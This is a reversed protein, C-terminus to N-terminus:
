QSILNSELLAVFRSLPVGMAACVELLELVDLKREGNEYNSVYSQPRGLAAAVDVQKMGAEIRIQRLLAQLVKQQRQRERVRTSPM